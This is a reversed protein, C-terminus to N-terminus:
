FLVGGEAHVLLGAVVVVFAGVRSGGEEFVGSGVAFVADPGADQAVYREDVGGDGNPTGAVGDGDADGWGGHLTEGM